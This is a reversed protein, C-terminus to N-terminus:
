EPPTGGFGGATDDHRILPRSPCKKQWTDILFLSLTSASHIALRAIREDIRSYGRERGHADGAHTRLSGIGQTTTILGSLITRVDNAIASDVDARDPALGLPGKVANYLGKIDKSAPLDMKLELIISRCVSEVTSCASTVADEPDSAVSSLARELDLNVSDFDITVARATLDVVVQATRGLPMLRVGGAVIRLEYGDYVLASNLVKLVGTHRDPDNIFDRPDAASELIAPMLDDANQGNNVQRLCEVLAPVRSNSGVIFDVNCDRMFSQLKYASRYIGILEGSENASGGSIVEALVGVTKPSILAV